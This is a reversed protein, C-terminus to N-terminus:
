RFYDYRGGAGVVIKNPDTPDIAMSPENAADGIINDGNADVNVQVSQIMGRVVIAQPSRPLDERSIEAPPDDLRERQERRPESSAGGAAVPPGVDGANLVVLILVISSIRIPM